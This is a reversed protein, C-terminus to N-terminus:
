LFTNKYDGLLGSIGLNLLFSENFAEIRPLEFLDNNRNILSRPNLSLGCTFGIEAVCHKLENNLSGNPYAFSGVNSGMEREIDLKSKLIEKKADHLPLKTLIPHNVTHAGFTIGSRGMEHIEKWSLVLNDILASPIEVSVTNQLRQILSNKETESLIKSLHLLTNITSIKDLKSEISYQESAGLDIYKETSNLISYIIKDWWFLERNMIPGTTLFITAPINYKKLIPFVYTYNDKHGDDFTLVIAKKPCKLNNKLIAICDELSIIQFNKKFYLIHNEFNEPTITLSAYDNETNVRHYNLIALQAGSINRRIAAYLDFIKLSNSVCLLHNSLNM